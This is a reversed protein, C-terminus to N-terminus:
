VSMEGLQCRSGTPGLPRKQMHRCLGKACVDWLCFGASELGTQQANLLIGGTGAYSKITTLSISM